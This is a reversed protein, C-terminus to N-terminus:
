WAGRRCETIKAQNDIMRVREPEGSRPRDRHVDWHPLGVV